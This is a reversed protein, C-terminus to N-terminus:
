DLAYLDKLRGISSPVETIVGIEYLWLERLHEMEEIIEWFGKLELNSCGGLRFRRLSNLECM